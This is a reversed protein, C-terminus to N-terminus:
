YENNNATYGYLSGPGRQAEPEGDTFVDHQTSSVTKFPTKLELTTMDTILQSSRLGKGGGGGGGRQFGLGARGQLPQLPCM